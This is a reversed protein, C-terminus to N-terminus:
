VSWPCNDATKDIAAFLWEMAHASAEAAYKQWESHMNSERPFLLSYAYDSRATAQWMAAKYECESKTYFHSFEM